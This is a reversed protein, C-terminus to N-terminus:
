IRDKDDEVIEGFWTVAHPYVSITSGSETSIVFLKPMSHADYIAGIEKVLSRGELYAKGQITVICNIKM